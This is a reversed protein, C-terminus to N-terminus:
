VMAKAISLQIKNHQKKCAQQLNDKKFFDFFNSQMYKLQKNKTYRSITPKKSQAKTIITKNLIFRPKFTTHQWNLQLIKIESSSFSRM